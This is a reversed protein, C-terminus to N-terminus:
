FAQESADPSPTWEVLADYQAGDKEIQTLTIASAPEAGTRTYTKIVGTSLNTGDTVKFVYTFPVKTQINEHTYTGNSSTASSVTQGDRIVTIQMNKGDM